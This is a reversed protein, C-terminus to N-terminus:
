CRMYLFALRALDSEYQKNYAKRVGIILACELYAYTITTLFEYLVFADFFAVFKLKFLSSSASALRSFM